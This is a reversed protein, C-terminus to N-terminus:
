NNKCYEMVRRNNIGLEKAIANISMGQGRLRDIDAKELDSLVRHPRGVRERNVVYQKNPDYTNGAPAKQQHRKDAFGLAMKLLEIDINQEKFIEPERERKDAPIDTLIRGKGDDRIELVVLKGNDQRKSQPRDGGILYYNANPKKAKFLKERNTKALRSWPVTIGGEQWADVLTM